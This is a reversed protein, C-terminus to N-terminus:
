GAFFNGNEYVTFYYGNKVTHTNTTTGSTTIEAKSVKKEVTINKTANSGAYTDNGVYDGFM